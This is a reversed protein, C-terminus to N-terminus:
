SNLPTLDNETSTTPKRRSAWGTNRRSPARSILSATSSGPNSGGKCVVNLHLDSRALHGYSGVLVDNSRQRVRTEEVLRHMDDLRLSLDYKYPYGFNTCADSIGERCRWLENAQAISQSIVGDLVPADELFSQLKQADHDENSGTTEILVRFPGQLPDNLREYDVVTRRADDDFFEIASIIEGLKLKALRM